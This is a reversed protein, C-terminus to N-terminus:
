KLTFDWMLKQGYSSREQKELEQIPCIYKSYPFVAIKDTISLYIDSM